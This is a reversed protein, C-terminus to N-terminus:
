VLNEIRVLHTKLFTRARFIYVKVQSENLGTIEAIEEYSYGEYDRLMLVSKQDAPLHEMAKNLVEYVDSYSTNEYDNEVPQATIFRQHIQTKRVEDVLTHHAATFLYSKAKEFNITEVKEWMKLFADQVVDSARDSCKIHKLVFRYVGDSFQNVCDNYENVTM